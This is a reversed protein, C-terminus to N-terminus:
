SNTHDFRLSMLKKHTEKLCDIHVILAQHEKITSFSTNELEIIKDSIRSRENLVLRRLHTIFDNYSVETTVTTM